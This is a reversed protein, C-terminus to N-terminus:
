LDARDRLWLALLTAVMADTVAPVRRVDLTGARAGNRLIPFPRGVAPVILAYLGHDTQIRVAVARVAIDYGVARRRASIGLDGLHRSIARAQITDAQHQPSLSTTPMCGCVTEETGTEDEATTPATSIPKTLYQM